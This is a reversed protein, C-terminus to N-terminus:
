LAGFYLGELFVILVWFGLKKYKTVDQTFFSNKRLNKIPDRLHIKCYLTDIHFNNM